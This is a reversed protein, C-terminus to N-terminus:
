EGRRTQKSRLKEEIRALAEVVDSFKEMIKQDLSEHKESLHKHDAEVREIDKTNQKTLGELRLGWVLGGVLAGSIGMVLGVILDGMERGVKELWM